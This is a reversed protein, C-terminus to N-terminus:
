MELVGVALLRLAFVGALFLVAANFVRQSVRNHVAVGTLAGVVLFPAVCMNLQLTTRTMIGMEWQIPVKSLNVFFFFWAATGIFQRKDMGKALFYVAMAPGAANGVVTGFGAVLGMFAVFWRQNPVGDERSLWKRAVHLGLLGLILLGILARLWSSALLHLVFYGPVMGIVVYPALELLRSWDAHRRYYSVAFVDGLILLPVMAGVSLRTNGPFAEAMLAIAPMGSGPIGTKAFGVLFAASGGLLLMGVTIGMVVVGLGCGLRAVLALM